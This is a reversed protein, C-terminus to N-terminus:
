EKPEALDRQHLFGGLIGLGHCGWSYRDVLEWAEPSIRVTIHVTRRKAM